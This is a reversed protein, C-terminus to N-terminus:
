RQPTIETRVKRQGAPPRPFGTLAQDFLVGYIAPDDTWVDEYVASTEYVVQQSAADRLMLSVKRRYLTPPGDMM